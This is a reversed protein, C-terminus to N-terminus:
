RGVVLAAVLFLLLTWSSRAVWGSNGYASFSDRGGCPLSDSCRFDCESEAVQTSASLSSEHGCGCLLGTGNRKVLYLDKEPYVRNCTAACANVTAEPVNLYALEEQVDGDTYCGLQFLNIHTSPQTTEVTVVKTPTTTTQRTTTEPEDCEGEKHLILYVSISSEGGCKEESDPCTKCFFDNMTGSGNGLAAQGGCGCVLRENMDIVKAFVLLTEPDERLCLMACTTASREEHDEHHIELKDYNLFDENYCYKYDLCFAASPVFNMALICVILLCTLSTM